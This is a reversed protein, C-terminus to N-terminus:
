MSAGSFLLYGKKRTLGKPTSDFDVRQSALRLIRCFSDIDTNDSEGFGLFPLSSQGVGQADIRACQSGRLDNDDLISSFYFGSASFAVLLFVLKQFRDSSYM